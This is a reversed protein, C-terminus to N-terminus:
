RPRTWQGARWGSRKPRGHEYVTAMTEDIRLEFPVHREQPSYGMVRAEQFALRQKGFSAPDPTASTFQSWPTTSKV